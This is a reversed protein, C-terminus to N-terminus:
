RHYKETLRKLKEAAEELGSGDAQWGWNRGTTGPTNMRAEDGLDLVDQLPMIVVNARSAFLEEKLIEETMVAEREPYRQACWGKLTQNDHTGSYAVKGIAPRYGQLPDGDYFQMVDTGPFGCTEVLGRVAPTLMGLDEALVPLPGFREKARAFLDAGPGFKWSGDVAPAGALISWYSEFGRFHDLRVYDYLDFVRALRRMWWDYGDRAMADWDYLPNGWLQGTSSFYDPPVGAGARTKGAADVAFLEREAWVDASDASVYMPLDGIIAVGKSAAYQRLEKWHKQFRYQCWRLYSAERATEPDPTWSEEEGAAEELGARIRAYQAAEDREEEPWEQWPRGGNKKKLATFLVYPELWSANDLWFREYEIRVPGMKEEMGSAKWVAYEKKLEEDTEPLLATNAAFASAGAYPSGYEDTPNIPLIQWYKQGAAALFDVFRKAAPGINGPGKPDPLSTIHCLVGAGRPMEVGFGSSNGRFFVAASGMPWLDAEAMGDARIRIDHGGVLDVAEPGKAPFTVRQTMSRSRNVLIVCHEDDKDRFFGFVDDGRSFPTFTGETFVDSMRRLAIANRFMDMVDRDERGWPYGARNYPDDYGQMGAEDGYYVCPVGPLTMQLLVMLWIRGKALGMRDAPLRYDRRQEESMQGPDPAEGLLTLLRMRDHSGMLNLTGYFAEKPYNEQLSTLIECVRGAGIKGLLFGHVADRLPYNMVSDLEQGLLYKRLIGYSVKHSADEWVEGLLLGDDGLTETVAKKVGAIFEDPLEDAVDLRWGRAGAQLWQRVIGGPRGCIMEQYEPNAEVVSPLDAVGWWSDYGNPSDDFRYWDRYPSDESQWAGVSDYNGFKNFFISDVGTHNFVGDLILSIGQGEAEEALQRFAEEDGLMPDIKTYDGTDYRHNSAAEFIPNLYIASIGLEKLYPLKERIGSLTGGYFDWATIQGQADREYFPPRYWDETLHRAPGKRPHALAGEALQRWDEGRAFRDPFIQYVVAKRYWDPLPRVKYVTLQYSPPEHDYLVGEGGSANEEGNLGERTGYRWERGDGGRLIFSYWVLAPEEPELRCIFRLRDGSETREMPIRTEGRGDVWLRCECSADRDDWVDISLWVPTGAPVAGFPNRYETLRSNHYARM